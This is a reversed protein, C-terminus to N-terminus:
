MSMVNSNIFEIEDRTLSYKEFLLKDIDSLSKEWDIDQSVERFDQIPIKSWTNKSQNNQTTKMIGLLARAFKTKLYKLLAEAEYKTDFSGISLFTQNHAMGPEGIIMDSLSEGFKGSGMAGPIIVKWKFLNRPNNLYAKKVYKFTRQGDIRGYIKIYSNIRDPLDDYFIEPYRKFVSSSVAKAHSADTRNILDPTEEFLLDTFRYSDPSFVWESLYDENAQNVKYHISVLEKYPIFTEIPRFEKSSNRYIIVVGGKIVTNQFVQESNPNFYKVKIHKDNLMKKNWAKPTGGQKSLFRAPSILIYKESLREALDYFLHYIQPAQNNSGVVSDQFPPNGVVVDFKM